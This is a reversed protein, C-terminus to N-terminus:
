KPAACTPPEHYIPADGGGAISCAHCYVHSAGSASQSAVLARATKLCTLRHMCANFPSTLMKLHEDMEDPCDPPAIAREASPAFRRHIEEVAEDSEHPFESYRVVDLLEQLSRKDNSSAM